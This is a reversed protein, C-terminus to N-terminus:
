ELEWKQEWEKEKWGLGLGEFSTRRENTPEELRGGCGLGSGLELGRKSKGVWSEWPGGGGWAVKRGKGWGGGLSTRRGNAEEEFRGDFGLELGQGLEEM